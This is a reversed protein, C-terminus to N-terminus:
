PATGSIRFSGQFAGGKRTYQEIFHSFRLSIHVHFQLVPPFHVRAVGPIQRGNIRVAGCPLRVHRAHRLGDAREAAQRSRQSLRGFRERIPQLRDHAGRLAGFPQVGVGKQAFRAVVAIRVALLHFGAADAHQGLKLRRGRKDIGLDEGDLRLPEGLEHFARTKRGVAVHDVVDAAGAAVGEVCLALPHQRQQAVGRLRRRVYEVHKFADVHRELRDGALVAPGRRQGMACHGDIAYALVAADAPLRKFLIGMGELAEDIRERRGIGARDLEVTVERGHAAILAGAGRRQEAIVHGNREVVREDGRDVATQAVHAAIQLQAPLRELEVLQM